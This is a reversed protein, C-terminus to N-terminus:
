GRLVQERDEKTYTLSSQRLWRAFNGVVSRVGQAIEARYEPIVSEVFEKAYDKAGQSVAEPRPWDNREYMERLRRERPAIFPPLEVEIPLNHRLFDEHWAEYPALTELLLDIDPEENEPFVLRVPRSGAHGAPRPPAILFDGQQEGFLYPYPVQDRPPKGSNHESAHQQLRRVLEALTVGRAPANKLVRGIGHALFSGQLADFERAKELRGSAFLILHNCSVLWDRGMEQVAIAAADKVGGVAGGANCCDLILLKNKAPCHELAEVLRAAALATTSITATTNDLYLWLRGRYLAGHGSFYILFQDDRKCSVAIEDFTKQLLYPDSSAEPRIVRFDCTPSELVQHIADADAQAYKLQSADAPGNSGFVYAIRAM